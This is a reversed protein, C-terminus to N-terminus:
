GKVITIHGNQTVTGGPEDWAEVNAQIINAKKKLAPKRYSHLRDKSFNAYKDALAKGVWDAGIENATAETAKGLPFNGGEMKGRYDAVSLRQILGANVM